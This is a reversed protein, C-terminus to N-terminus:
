GGANPIRSGIARLVRCPPYTRRRRVGVAHAAHRPTQGGNPERVFRRRPRHRPVRQPTGLAVSLSHDPRHCASRRVLRRHRRRLRDTPEALFHRRALRTRREEVTFSRVTTLDQRHRRADVSPDARASRPRRAAQGRVAGRRRPRRRDGIGAGVVRRRHRVQDRDEGQGVRVDARRGPHLRHGAATLPSPDPVIEADIIEDSEPDPVASDAM